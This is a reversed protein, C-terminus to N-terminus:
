KAGGATDVEVAWGVMSYEELRQKIQKETIQLSLCQNVSLVFPM